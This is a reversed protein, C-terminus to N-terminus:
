YKSNKDDKVLVQNLDARGIERILLYKSTSICETVSDYFVLYGELKTGNNVLRLTLCGCNLSYEDKREYTLTLVLNRFYGRTDFVYGQNPGTLPVARGSIRHAIQSIEWAVKREVGNVTTTALWRGNIKIGRYLREDIWPEIVRKWMNAIILTISSAVLGSIIGLLLEPM